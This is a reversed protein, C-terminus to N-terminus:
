HLYSQDFSYLGPDSHSPRLKSTFWPAYVLVSSKWSSWAYVNEFVTNLYTLIHHSPPLCREELRRCALRWISAHFYTALSTIFAQKRINPEKPVNTPIKPIKLMKSCDLTFNNLFRQFARRFPLFIVRSVKRVAMVQTKRKMLSWIHPPAFKSLPWRYKQRNQFFCCKLGSCETWFWHDAFGSTIRRVLDNVQLFLLLHDWFSTYYYGPLWMQQMIYFLASYATFCPNRWDLSGFYTIKELFMPRKKDPGKLHVHEMDYVWQYGETHAHYINPWHFYLRKNYNKWFLFYVNALFFLFFFVINFLHPKAEALHYTIPSNGTVM